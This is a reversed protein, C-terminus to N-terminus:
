EQPVFEESTSACYIRASQTCEIFLISYLASSNTGSEVLRGVTGFSNPDSWDSCHYSSPGTPNLGTWVLPNSAISADSGNALLNVSQHTTNTDLIKQISEAILTVKRTADITYVTQDLPIHLSIKGSSDALLARYTRNLGADSADKACLEDAAGGGLSGGTKPATVFIHVQTKEIADSLPSPSPSPSPSPAPSAVVTPTPSPDPRPDCITDSECGTLPDRSDQVPGGSALRLSKVCGMQLISFIVLM